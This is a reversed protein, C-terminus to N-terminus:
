LLIFTRPDTHIFNRKIIGLMSYAKNTKQHIHESFTLMHILFVGLDKIYSYKAIYNYDHSFSCHCIKKSVIYIDRRVCV